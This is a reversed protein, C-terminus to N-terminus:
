FDWKFVIQHETAIKLIVAAHGGWYRVDENLYRKEYQKIMKDVGSEKYYIEAVAKSARKYEEAQTSGDASNVYLTTVLLGIGASIDLM